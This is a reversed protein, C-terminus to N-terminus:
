LKRLKRFKSLIRSIKFYISKGNSFFKAFLFIFILIIGRSKISSAESESERKNITIIFEIVPPKFLWDPNSELKLMSRGRSIDSQASESASQLFFCFFMITIIIVM